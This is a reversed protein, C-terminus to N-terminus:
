LSMWSTGKRRESRAAMMEDIATNDPKPFVARLKPDQIRAACDLCDDHRVAPYRKFETELFDEAINTQKGLTSGPIERALYVRKEAYMGLSGKIRDEKKTNGGLAEIFFRYSLKKMKEQFYASDNNLGYEEWGVRLKRIPNWKKHKEYLRQWREQQNLKDRIADFFYYNQDELLAILWMVTFDSRKNKANAPDGLLYVNAKKLREVFPADVDFRQIWEPNFTQTDGFRTPVQQYLALWDSLPMRDRQRRLYEAPYMEPWLSTASETEDPVRVGNNDLSGLAPMSLVTWNESKGHEELEWGAIDDPDWRTKIMVIPTTPRARAFIVTSLWDRLVRQVAESKAEEKDKEPDDIVILGAPRGTISGGRGVARCAGGGSLGFDHKAKSDDKVACAPFLAQHIETNILDRVESGFDEALEAAYATIIAYRDPHKGLWWAPFLKTAFTSNHTPTLEKGVLYLGDFRSVQICRGPEPQPAFRVAKIGIRRALPTFGKIRKRPLRTPIPLNPSFTLQYTSRKGQIGSSSLAPATESIAAHWGLSRVIEAADDILRRNTNSFAVRHTRQHVYGDTDILGALLELRQRPSSFKYGDPIHKNDFVGITRLRARLGLFRSTHVGTGKHINVCSAVFDQGIAEAVAIDSASHTICGGDSTGDGLWAGLVYPPVTLIRSPFDIADRTPLQFRARHKKGSVLKQSLLYKTEVTRWKGYARDYLTWEHNPHVKFVAGEFTEVELSSPEPQEIVALVRTPWGSLGFVRDGVELDGHTVWGRNATLVPTSNALQKGFQPPMFVMLRMIEGREVAELHEILKRHHTALTLNPRQAVCYQSFDERAQLFLQFVQEQEATLPM